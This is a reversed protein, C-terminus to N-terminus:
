LQNWHIVAERKMRGVEMSWNMIKGDEQEINQRGRNLTRGDDTGYQIRSDELESNEGRRTGTLQTFPL